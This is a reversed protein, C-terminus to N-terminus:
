NLDKLIWNAYDGYKYNKSIIKDLGNILCFVMLSGVEQITQIM